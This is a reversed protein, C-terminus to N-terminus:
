QVSIHLHRAQGMKDKQNENITREGSEQSLADSVSLPRLAGPAVGVKCGAFPYLSSLTSWIASESGCCSTRYIYGKGKYTILCQFIKNHLLSLIKRLM